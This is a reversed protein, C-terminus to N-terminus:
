NKSVTNINVLRKAVERSEIEEQIRRSGKPKMKRRESNKLLENM